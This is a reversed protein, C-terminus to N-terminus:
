GRSNLAIVSGIAINPVVGLRLDFLLLAGLATFWASELCLSFPPLLFTNDGLFCVLWTVELNFLPVAHM